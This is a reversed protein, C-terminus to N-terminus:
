RGGIGRREPSRSTRVRSRARGGVAAPSRLSGQGVGMRISFGLTLVRLSVFPRLLQQAAQVDGGLVSGDRDPVALRHQAIRRICFEGADDTKRDWVRGRVGVRRWRHAGRHGAIRIRRTGDRVIFAGSASGLAALPTM